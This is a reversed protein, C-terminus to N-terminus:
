CFFLQLSIYITHLFHNRVKFGVRSAPLSVSHTPGVLAMWSSAVVVVVVVHMVVVVHGRGLAMVHMWCTKWLAAIGLLCRDM